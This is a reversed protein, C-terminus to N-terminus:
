MYTKYFKFMIRYLWSLLQLYKHRTEDVKLIEGQVPCFYIPFIFARKNIDQHTHVQYLVICRFELTYKISSLAQETVLCTTMHDLVTYRHGRYLCLGPHDRVRKSPAQSM